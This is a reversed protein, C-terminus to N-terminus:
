TATRKPLTSPLRPLTTSVKLFCISRPPGTVTVSWVRFRNFGPGPDDTRAELDIVGYFTSIFMEAATSECILDNAKTLVTAPSRFERAYARLVHKGMTTYEAADVDNGAVDAMVVGVSGPGLGVFDYFDGGVERAPLFKHGIDLGDMPPMGKPVLRQQLLEAIKYKRRYSRANEVAVGGLDGLPQMISRQSRSTSM